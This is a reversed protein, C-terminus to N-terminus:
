KFLKKFFGEKSKTKPKRIPNIYKAGGSLVTENKLKTKTADELVKKQAPTM